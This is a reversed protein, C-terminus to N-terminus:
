GEDDLTKFPEGFKTNELILLASATSEKPVLSFQVNFFMAALALVEKAARGWEENTTVKKGELSKQLWETSRRNSTYITTPQLYHSSKMFWSLARRVAIFTAYTASAYYPIEHLVGAERHVEVSHHVGHKPDVYALSVIFSYAYFQEKNKNMKEAVVVCTFRPDM